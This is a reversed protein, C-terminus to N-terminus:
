IRKLIMAKRDFYSLYMLVRAEKVSDDIHRYVLLVWLYFVKARVVCVCKQLQIFKLYKSFSGHSFKDLLTLCHDLTTRPQQIMYDCPVSISKQCTLQVVNKCSQAFCHLSHNINCGTYISETYRVNTTTFLKPIIALMRYNSQLVM